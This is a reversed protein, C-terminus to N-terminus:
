GVIQNELYTMVSDYEQRVEPFLSRIRDIQEERAAMELAELLDGLAKAFVNRSSSKLSHAKALVVESDGQEVGGTLEAFLGKGEKIYVRYTPEVIEEIGAARMSHRFAELDVPPSITDDPM